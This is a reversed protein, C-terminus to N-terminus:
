IVSILSIMHYKEIWTPLKENWIENNLEIIEIQNSKYDKKRKLNGLPENMVYISEKVSKFINIIGTKFDNVQLKLWQAMKLYTVASLKKEQNYIINEQM